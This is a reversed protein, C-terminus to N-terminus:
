ETIQEHFVNLFTSSSVMRGCGRESRGRGSAISGLLLMTTGLLRMITELSSDFSGLLPMTTGLLQMTTELLVNFSGYLPM